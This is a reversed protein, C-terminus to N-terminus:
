ANCPVRECMMRSSCPSTPPHRHSDPTRRQTPQLACVWKAVQSQSRRAWNAGSGTLRFLRTGVFMRRKVAAAAFFIGIGAATLRLFLMTGAFSGWQQQSLVRYNLLGTAVRKRWKRAGPVVGRTGALMPARESWPMLQAGPLVNGGGCAPHVEVQGRQM